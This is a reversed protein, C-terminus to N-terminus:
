TRKRSQLIHDEDASGIARAPLPVSSMIVFGGSLAALLKWFVGMQREGFEPPLTQECPYFFQDIM